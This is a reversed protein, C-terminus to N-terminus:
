AEQRVRGGGEQADQDKEGVVGPTKKLGVVDLPM